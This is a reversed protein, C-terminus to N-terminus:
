RGHPFLIILCQDAAIAPALHLARSRDLTLGALDLSQALVEVRCLNLKPQLQAQVFDTNTLM